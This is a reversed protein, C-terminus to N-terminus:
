DWVSTASLGPNRIKDVQGLSVTSKKPCAGRKPNCSTLSKSVIQIRNKKWIRSKPILM